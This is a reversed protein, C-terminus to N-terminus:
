FDLRAPRPADQTRPPIYLLRDRSDAPLLKTMALPAFCDMQRGGHIAADSREECHRPRM